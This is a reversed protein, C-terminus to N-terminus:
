IERHFKWFLTIWWYNRLKNFIYAWCQAVLLFIYWLIEYNLRSIQSYPAETLLLEIRNNSCSIMLKRFHIHRSKRWFFLFLLSKNSYNNNNEILTNSNGYFSKEFNVGHAHSCGFKWDSVGGRERNDRDRTRKTYNWVGLFFFFLHLTFCLSNQFIIILQLTSSIMDTTYEKNEPPFFKLLLLLFSM